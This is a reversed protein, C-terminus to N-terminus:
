PAGGQAGQPGRQMWRRLSGVVQTLFWLTAQAMTTDLWQLATQLIPTRIFERLALVVEDYTLRVWKKLLLWWLRGGANERAEQWLWEATNIPWRERLRREGIKEVYEDFDWAMEEVAPAKEDRLFLASGASRVTWRGEEQSLAAALSSADGFLPAKEMISALTRRASEVLEQTKSLEVESISALGPDLLRVSAEASAMGELLGLFQQEAALSHSELTLVGLGLRAFEDRLKHAYGVHHVLVREVEPLALALGVARRTLLEGSALAKARVRLPPFLPPILLSAWVATAVNVEELYAETQAFLRFAPPEGPFLQEQTYRCFICEQGDNLDTTVVFLDGPLHQFGKRRLATEKVLLHFLRQGELLGRAESPQDVARLLQLFNVEVLDQWSYKEVLRYYEEKAGEASGGTAWYLAGVLAGGATGVIIEPKMGARELALLAGLHGAARAWGGSLVVAFKGM